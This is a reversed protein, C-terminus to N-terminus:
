DVKTLTYTGYPISYAEIDTPTGDSLLGQSPSRNYLIAIIKAVGNETIRRLMLGASLGDVNRRTPEDFGMIIRRQNAPCDECKPYLTNGIIGLSYLNYNIADAHNISLSPLTNIITNGNVQYQYEGILFDEFFSTTGVTETMMEKKVLKITFTINGSNYIWTGIYPNFDADVDKYYRGNKGYDTNQFIPEVTQAKCALSILLLIIINKM